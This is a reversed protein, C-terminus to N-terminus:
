WEPGHEIVFLLEQELLLDEVQGVGDRLRTDEVVHLVEQGVDDGARAEIGLHERELPAELHHEARAGPGGQDPQQGHGGLHEVLDGLHADRGLDVLPEDGPARKPRAM